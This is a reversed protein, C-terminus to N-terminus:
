QKAPAAALSPLSSAPRRHSTSRGAPRLPPSDDRRVGLGAPAQEDTEIAAGLARCSPQDSTSRRSRLGGTFWASRLRWNGKQLGCVKHILRLFIRWSLGFLGGIEISRSVNSFDRAPMALQKIVDIQRSIEIAHDAAVAYVFIHLNRIFCVCF